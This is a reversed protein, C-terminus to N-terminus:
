AYQYSYLLFLSVPVVRFFLVEVCVTIGEYLSGEPFGYIHGSRTFMPNTSGLVLICIM